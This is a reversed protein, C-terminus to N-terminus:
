IDNIFDEKRIFTWNKHHKRTGNVVSQMHSNQLNNKLCFQYLNIIQIEINDPSLFYYVYKIKALSQKDKTKQTHKKGTMPSPVGYMPNGDGSVRDSIKKKTEETAKKGIKAKRCKLKHEDSLTKGFWYNKEGSNALKIANKTSDDHHRGLMPNGSFKAINFCNENFKKNQENWYLNLYFQEEILLSIEDCTKLLKMEFKDIGYQNYSNQLHQNDHNQNKLQSIHSNYRKQLNITSGIYVKNNVLNRIEYIGCVKTPDELTLKM